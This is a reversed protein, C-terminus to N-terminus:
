ELRESWYVRRDVTAFAKSAGRDSSEYHRARVPSTFIRQLKNNQRDTHRDTQIKSL